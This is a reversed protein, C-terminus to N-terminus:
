GERKFYPTAPRKEEELIRDVDEDLKKRFKRLSEELDESGLSGPANMCDEKGEGLVRDLQNELNVNMPNLERRRITLIYAQNNASIEVENKALLLEGEQKRCADYLAFRARHMETKGHFRLTIIEGHLARIWLKQCKGRISEKSM